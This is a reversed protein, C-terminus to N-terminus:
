PIGKHLNKYFEGHSEISNFKQFLYIFETLGSEFFGKNVQWTLFTFLMTGYLIKFDQTYRDM